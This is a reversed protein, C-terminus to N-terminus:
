RSVFPSIADRLPSHITPTYLRMCFSLILNEVSLVVHRGDISPFIAAQLGRAARAGLKGQAHPGEACIDRITNM